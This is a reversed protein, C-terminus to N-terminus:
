VQSKTWFMKNTYFMSYQWSKIYVFNEIRVAQTGKIDVCIYLFTCHVKSVYSSSAETHEHPYYLYTSWVPAQTKDGSYQYALLIKTQTYCEHNQKYILIKDSWINFFFQYYPVFNAKICCLITVYEQGRM